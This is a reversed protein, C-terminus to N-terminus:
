DSTTTGRQYVLASVTVPKISNPGSATVTVDLQEMTTTSTSNSGTTFDGNATGIWTNVTAQWTYQPWDTGFDGQLSGGNWNGTAILESLKSQALGAAETRTRTADGAHLAAAIGKEAVPLVIAMLLITALCEVLTFGSSLASRFGHAGRGRRKANQTKREASENM